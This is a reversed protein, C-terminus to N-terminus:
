ACLPVRVCFAGGSCRRSRGRLASEAPWRWIRRARHARLLKQIGPSGCAEPFLAANPMVCSIPQAASGRGPACREQMRALLEQAVCAGDDHAMLHIRRVGRVVVLAEVIDAQDQISYPYGSPKDSFGFGLFDLTLVRPFRDALPRWMARFDWCATPFGHLLLLAEEGSGSGRIFM